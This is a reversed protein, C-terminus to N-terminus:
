APTATALQALTGFRGRDGHYDFHMLDKDGDRPGVTFNGGWALQGSRGPFMTENTQFAAIALKTYLTSYDPGTNPITQGKPDIIAIDIANGLAHQSIGGTGAVTAGRRMASTVLVRYGDPLTKSAEGVIAVLDKISKTEELDIGPKASLRVPDTSRTSATLSAGTAADLLRAGADASKIFNSLNKPNESFYKSAKLYEEVASRDVVTEPAAVSRVSKGSLWDLLDSPPGTMNIWLFM